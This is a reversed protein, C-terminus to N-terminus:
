RLHEGRCGIHLVRWQAHLIRWLRSLPSSLDALSALVLTDHHCRRAPSRLIHLDTGCITSTTIRVFGIRRPVGKIVVASSSRGVLFTAVGLVVVM